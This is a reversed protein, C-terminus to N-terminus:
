WRIGVKVFTKCDTGVRAQEMYIPLWLPLRLIMRAPFSHLRLIM